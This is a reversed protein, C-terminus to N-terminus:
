RPTKSSDLYMQERRKCLRDKFDVKYSKTLGFDKGHKRKQERYCALSFLACVTWFQWNKQPCTSIEHYTLKLNIAM